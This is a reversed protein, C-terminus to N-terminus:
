PAVSAAGLREIAADRVASRRVKGADDRLPEDVLEISRPLKYRVLRDALFTLLDTDTVGDGPRRRALAPGMLPRGVSGRHELWETGSITTVSIVETGGYLEYLRDPGVLDIWQEKLHAPCPAAMHWVHHLSSLDFTRGTEEIVRMMRSMMTPVLNVWTVRHREIAELAALADFKPLVVLHHGLQLGNTSLGFPANHYLPGPVLQVDEFAMGFMAGAAPPGEAANGALILKPRGTSGGSTPAKAVPSVVEPLPGDDLSPDPVFGAPLCVRDGHAGPEAGLVLTSGALEIIAEREAAPLRNSVPQPIAGLKWTAITAEYFEISNPLGITVFDGFRVGLAQYARALRNSRSELEARTITEDGCTIATADPRAEALERLTRVYPKTEFSLETM